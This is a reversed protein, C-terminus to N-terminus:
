KRKYKYQNGYAPCLKHSKCSLSTITISTILLLIILVKKKITKMQSFSM